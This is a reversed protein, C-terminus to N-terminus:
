GMYKFHSQVDVSVTGPTVVTGNTTDFVPGFSINGNKAAQQILLQQTYDTNLTVNAPATYLTGINPAAVPTLSIVAVATGCPQGAGTAVSIAGQYPVTTTYCATTAGSTFFKVLVPCTTLGPNSNTADQNYLMNAVQIQQLLAAAVNSTFAIMAIGFTSIIIRKM